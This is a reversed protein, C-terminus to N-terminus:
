HIKFLDNILGYINHKCENPYKKVILSPSLEDRKISFIRSIIGSIEEKGSAITMELLEIIDARDPSSTKIMYKLALEIDEITWESGIIATAMEKTILIKNAMVDEITIINSYVSVFEINGRKSDYFEKHQNALLFLILKKDRKDLAIDVINRGFVDKMLLSQKNLSAMRVVGAFDNRNAYVIANHPM